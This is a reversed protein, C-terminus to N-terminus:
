APAPPELATGAAPLLRVPSRPGREPLDGNRPATSDEVHEASLADLAADVSPYSPFRGLHQRAAVPLTAVLAGAGALHLGVRRRAAADIAQDLGAIAGTSATRTVTFDLLIHATTVQGLDLLQLRADVLRLLRAGAVTDLEGAARIVHVDRRPTTMAFGGADQVM